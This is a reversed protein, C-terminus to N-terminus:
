GRRENPLYHEHKTCLATRYCELMQGSLGLWSMRAHFLESDFPLREGATLRAVAMGFAQLWEARTSGAPIASPFEAALRGCDGVTSCLLPEGTGLHESFKIPFRSRNFPTDELPLLGLDLAAPFERVAAPSIQGLYDMRERVAAPVNQVAAPPAGCIALRLRPFRAAHAAVAAFCWDLEAVTRGMFGVYFTDARLKLRQRAGQRDIAQGPWNGNYILSVGRAGRQNALDGLFSSVTTVHDALAPLRRELWRTSHFRWSDRWRRAREPLLGGIWLDDWDYLRVRSRANCWAAAGSAFPQFLHAVDCPPYSRGYRRAVALPECWDGFVRNLVFSEPIIHYPVEDRIECETRLRNWHDAAYVVVHHGLQRLGRALNHFRFYTGALHVSSTFFQIRLQRQSAHGSISSNL